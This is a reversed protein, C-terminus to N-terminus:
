VAAVVAIGSPWGLDYGLLVYLTDAAVLMLFMPERM